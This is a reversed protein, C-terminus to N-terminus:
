LQQDLDGDGDADGWEVGRGMFTDTSNWSPFINWDLGM